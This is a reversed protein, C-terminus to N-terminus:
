HTILKSDLRRARLLWPALQQLQKRAEGAPPMLDFQAFTELFRQRRKLVRDRRRRAQRAQRRAAAKSPLDEPDRGDQFIRAGM